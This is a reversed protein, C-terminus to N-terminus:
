MAILVLLGILGLTMWSPRDRLAFLVPDDDILRRHAMLIVRGIWYMLLPCVAWLVHPRLYLQEVADSSIYFTFVTVANFGTAAAMAAIVDIDGAKYNRNSPDPLGQDLRRALDVHRKILALTTFMFMSFALLWESIPISDAVAGGVVRVSYLLSLTVVDVLM